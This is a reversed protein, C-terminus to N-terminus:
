NSVDAVVVMTVNSKYQCWSKVRNRVPAGAQPSIWGLRVDHCLFFVYDYDMLRMLWSQPDSYVDDWNKNEYSIGM